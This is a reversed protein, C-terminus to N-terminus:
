KGMKEKVERVHEAIEEGDAFWRCMTEIQDMDKSRLFFEAIAISIGHTIFSKLMSLAILLTSCGIFLTIISVIPGIDV